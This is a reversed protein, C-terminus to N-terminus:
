RISAEHEVLQALADVYGNEFGIQTIDKYRFKEKEAWQGKTDVEELTVYRSTQRAVQGVFGCGPRKKEMELMLLPYRNKLSELLSAWDTLDVHDPVLPKREMLRLARTRFSKDVRYSRVHALKVAAYGGLLLTNGDVLQLLLLENGVGVVFGELNYKDIAKRDISIVIDEGVFEEIGALRKKM